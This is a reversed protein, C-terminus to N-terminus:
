MLRTTSQPRGTLVTGSTMHLWDGAEAQPAMADEGPVRVEVSFSQRRHWPGEAQEDQQGAERDLQQELAPRPELHHPHDAASSPAPATAPHDGYSSQHRRRVLSLSRGVGGPQGPRVHPGAAGQGDDHGETNHPPQAPAHQDTPM